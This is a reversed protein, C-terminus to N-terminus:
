KKGRGLRFADALRRAAASRVRELANSTMIQMVRVREEDYARRLTELLRLTEESSALRYGRRGDAGMAQQLFNGAKVLADLATEIAEEPLRVAPAVDAASWVGRPARVFFLLTELEEFSSVNDRLFPRLEETEDSTL